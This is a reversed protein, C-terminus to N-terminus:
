SYFESPSSTLAIEDASPVPPSSQTVHLFSVDVEVISFAWPDMKGGEGQGVVKKTGSAKGRKKRTTSPPAPEPEGLDFEDDFDEDKVGGKAGRSRATKPPHRPRPQSYTIVLYRKM